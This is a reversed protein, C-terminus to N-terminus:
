IRVSDSVSRMTDKLREARKRKWAQLEILDEREEEINEITRVLYEDTCRSIYYDIHEDETKRAKLFFLSELLRAFYGKEEETCVTKNSYVREYIERCIKQEIQRNTLRGFVKKAEEYETECAFFMVSMLIHTALLQAAIAGVGILIEETTPLM